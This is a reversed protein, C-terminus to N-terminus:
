IQFVSPRSNFSKGSLLGDFNSDPMHKKLAKVINRRPNDFTVTASHFRSSRVLVCIKKQSEEGGDYKM